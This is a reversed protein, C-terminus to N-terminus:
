KAFGYDALKIHGKKDLLINEPKLDRYVCGIRDHLYGLAATVEALYFRVVEVPFREYKRLHYFLEGGPVFELILYLYHEDQFSNVLKTCFNSNMQRMIEVEQRIHSVQRMMVIKEKSLKKMAYLTGKKDRVLYVKGFSGCAILNLIELDKLTPATSM